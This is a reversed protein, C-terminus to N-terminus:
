QLYIYKTKTGPNKVREIYTKMLVTLPKNMAGAAHALGTDNAIVGAAVSIIKLATRIDGFYGDAIDMLWKNRAADSKSGVAIVKAKPNAKKAAAIEAMYAEKGPDKAAVYQPNESGSGNIIAICNKWIKAEAPTPTPTDVYTHYRPQWREGTVVQFVHQYDPKDNGLNVMYSGFLVGGEPQTDLIEIAAWDTFCERVYDTAFYVPIKEGTREHLWKIAPTLNIFNGLGFDKHQLVYSM